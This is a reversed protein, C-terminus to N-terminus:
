IEASCNFFFDATRDRINFNLRQGMPEMEKHLNFLTDWLPWARLCLMQFLAALQSFCVRVAKFSRLTIFHQWIPAGWQTKQKRSHSGSERRRAKFAFRRSFVSFLSVFSNLSNLADKVFISVIWHLRRTSQDDSLSWSSYISQGTVARQSMVVPLTEQLYVPVKENEVWNSKLVM